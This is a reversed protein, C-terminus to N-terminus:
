RHVPTWPYSPGVPRPVGFPTVGKSHDRRRPARAPVGGSGAAVSPVVRGRDWEGPIPAAGRRSGSRAFGHADLVAPVDNIEATRGGALGAGGM